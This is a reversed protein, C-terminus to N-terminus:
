KFYGEMLNKTKDTKSKIIGFLYNMRDINERSFKPYMKLYESTTFGDIKSVFSSVMISFEEVIVEPPYEYTGTPEKMARISEELSQTPLASIETSVPKEAEVPEPAQPSPQPEPQSEPNPKSPHIERYISRVSAGGRLRQKQEETGEKVIKKVKDVTDHSVGARQAITDRTDGQPEREASNQPVIASHRLQSLQREKARAKLIPEARLELMVRAGDSLNRRGRQNDIIWLIADDRSDFQKDVTKFPINHATCIRYRNHGDVIISDWVVLPDRCGDAILNAELQALEDSTLPPILGQFEEDIQLKQM